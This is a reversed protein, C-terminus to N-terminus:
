RGAGTRARSSTSREADAESAIPTCGRDRRRRRSRAPGGGSLEHCTSPRSGELHDPVAAAAVPQPTVGSTSRVALEPERASWVLANVGGAEPRGRRRPAGGARSPRPARALYTALTGLTSGARGPAALLHMPPRTRSRPSTARAFGDVGGGSPVTALQHRPCARPGRLRPPEECDEVATLCLEEVPGLAVPRNIAMAPAGEVLRDPVKANMPLRIGNTPRHREAERGRAAGVTADSAVKLRLWLRADERVVVGAAVQVNITSRSGAGHRRAVSRPLGHSREGRRDPAPRPAAAPYRRRRM